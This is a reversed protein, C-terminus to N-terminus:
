EDREKMKKGEDKHEEKGAKVAKTTSNHQQTEAVHCYSCQGRWCLVITEETVAALNSQHM